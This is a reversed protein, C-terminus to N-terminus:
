AMRYGISVKFGDDTLCQVVQDGVEHSLAEASSGMASRTGLHVGWRLCPGGTMGALGRRRHAGVIAAGRRGRCRRCTGCLSSWGCRDSAGVAAADGFPVAQPAAPRVLVAFAAFSSRPELVIMAVGAGFAACRVGGVQAYQAAVVIAERGLVLVAAVVDVLGEGFLM